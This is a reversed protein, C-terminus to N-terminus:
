QRHVQRELKEREENIKAMKEDEVRQADARWQVRTVDRSKRDISCALLAALLFRAMMMMTITVMVAAVMVVVVVAVMVVMVKAYDDANKQAYANMETKHGKRAEERIHIQQLLM